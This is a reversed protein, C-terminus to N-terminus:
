ATPVGDLADTVMVEETTGVSVSVASVEDIAWPPAAEKVMVALWAGTFFVETLKTTCPVV